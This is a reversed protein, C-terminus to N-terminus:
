MNDTKRSSLHHNTIYQPYNQSITLYNTANVMSIASKGEAVISRFYDLIFLIFDSLLYKGVQLKYYLTTRQFVKTNQKTSHRVTTYLTTFQKYSALKSSQLQTSQTYEIPANTNPIQIKTSLNWPQPQKQLHQQLNCGKCLSTDFQAAPVNPKSM